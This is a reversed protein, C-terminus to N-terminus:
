AIAVAMAIMGSDSTATSVSVMATPVRCMASSFTMTRLSDASSFKPPTVSIQLSM